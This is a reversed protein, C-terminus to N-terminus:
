AACLPSRVRPGGGCAHPCHPTAGGGRPQHGTWGWMRPSLTLLALASVGRKPGGGCGHPCYCARARRGRRERDVGVSKPVVRAGGVHTPVISSGERQAGADATGGWM